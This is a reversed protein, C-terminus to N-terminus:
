DNALRIISKIVFVALAIYWPFLLVGLITFQFAQGGLHITTFTTVKCWNFVYVIVDFINSM